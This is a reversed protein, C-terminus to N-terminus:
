CLMCCRAVDKRLADQHRNFTLEVETTPNPFLSVLFAFQRYIGDVLYYLLTRTPGNATFSYIRPPWEGNTVSLYLLSVHMVILDNHSGPCRVFLNWIWFYEDCLTDM